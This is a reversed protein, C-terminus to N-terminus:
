RTSNQVILEYGLQLSKSVTQNQSQLRAILLYAAEKGAEEYYFHVTTLSPHMISSVTSDNMGAVQIDGPIDIGQETLYRIAGLALTDTACILTDIDPHKQLLAKTQMYGSQLDFGALSAEGIHLDAQTIGAERMAERFGDMRKKGVAVDDMKACIFGFSTGSPILSSTLERAAGFDDHYVCSYNPLHQGIIVIPVALQKLANMHEKTFITGLLIVGDVQNDRFVNLYELEKSEDNQTCALLLQYDKKNLISSIGSVIRSISDSNIKPIIVGILNTKKSRLTKAYSSPQYGTEDIVKQIREKKDQSVYGNNLYRSVTARSVGALGAIENINM